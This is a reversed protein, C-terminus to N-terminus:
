PAEDGGGACACGCVDGGGAVCCCSAVGAVEGGGADMCDALEGGGDDAVDGLVSAVLVVVGADLVVVDGTSLTLVGVVAVV